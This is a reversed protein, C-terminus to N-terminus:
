PQKQWHFSQMLAVVDQEVYRTVPALSDAAPRCAYHLAGRFFRTSRDTLLFQIPTTTEGELRFLTGYVQREEDEYDQEEAQVVASLQREVLRRSDAVAQTWTAPTVPFCSCYLTAQWEPYDVNLWVEGAPAAPFSCVTQQPIQFAFPLTDALLWEYTVEPREIRLYGRPKPAYNTCAMLGVAGWAMLGLKKM